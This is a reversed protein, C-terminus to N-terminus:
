KIIWNKTNSPEVMNLCNLLTPKRRLTVCDAQSHVLHKKSIVRLLKTVKESFIMGIKTLFLVLKTHFIVCM